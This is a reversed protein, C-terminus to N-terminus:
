QKFNFLYFDQDTSDPDNIIVIQIAAYTFSASNGLKTLIVDGDMIDNVQGLGVGSQYANVVSSDTANAYDFANFKIFKGGAPSVWTRSLVETTDNLPMDQLDLDTSDNLSSIMGLGAELNYADANQSNNSYMKHGTTESLPSPQTPLPGVFIRMAHSGTSGNNDTATFTIIINSNAADALVLFDFSMELFDLNNLGSDLEIITPSGPNDIKSTIQFQRLQIDTDVSISFSVYEGVPSNVSLGSPWVNVLPEELEEDKTCSSFITVVMLSVGVSKVWFNM